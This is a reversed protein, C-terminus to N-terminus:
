VRPGGAWAPIREWAAQVQAWTRELSGSNDILVDARAIKAEPTPQASVRLEAEAHSLGRAVDIRELQQQRTSTVVWVSYCDEAMGAEILKIAEVVVVRAESERVLRNIEARTAPHVIEELRALADADAFVLAGLRRRDLDGDPALVAEGFAAVIRAHVATGARMVTHAVRDADIVRAGMCALMAAVTSKGTGINGTLGILYRRSM